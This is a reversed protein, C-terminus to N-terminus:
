RKTAIMIVQDAKRSGHAAQFCCGCGGEHVTTMYLYKIEMYIFHM